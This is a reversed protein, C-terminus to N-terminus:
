IPMIILLCYRDNGSINEDSFLFSDLDFNDNDINELDMKYLKNNYKDSFISNGVYKSLAKLGPVDM